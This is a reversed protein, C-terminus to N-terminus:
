RELIEIPVSVHVTRPPLCVRDSCAQFRVSVPVLQKGAPTHPKVQVPLHVVFSHSYLQTDLNFSQDHKKIPESGSAAGAPLAIGNEDLTVRLPTPGGQPQELGYVHWGERIEASLDIVIKKGPEVAPKSPASGTWQVPQIPAQAVGFVCLYLGLSLGFPIWRFKM